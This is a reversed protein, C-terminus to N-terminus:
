IKKQNYKKRESYSIKNTQYGVSKQSLIRSQKLYINQRDNYYSDTLKVGNNIFSASKNSNKSLM